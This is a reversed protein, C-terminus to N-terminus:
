LLNDCLASSPQNDAPKLTKNVFLSSLHLSTSWQVGRGATWSKVTDQCPLQQTNVSMSPWLWIVISPLFIPCPDPLLGTYLPWVVNLLTQKTFSSIGNGDWLGRESREGAESWPNFCEGKFTGQGGGYTFIIPRTLNTFACRPAKSGLVWGCFQFVCRLHTWKYVSSKCENFFAM